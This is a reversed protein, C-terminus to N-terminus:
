QKNNFWLIIKSNHVLQSQLSFVAEEFHSYQDNQGQKFHTIHLIQIEEKKKRREKSVELQPLCWQM